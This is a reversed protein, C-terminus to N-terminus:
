EGKGALEHWNEAPDFYRVNKIGAGVLEDALHQGASGEGFVLPTRGKRQEQLREVMSPSAPFLADYPLLFAGPVPDQSANAEPRADVVLYKSPNAKFEALALIGAQVTSEPCDQFIEYPQSAIWSIPTARILNVSFTLILSFGLLVACRILFQLARSKM